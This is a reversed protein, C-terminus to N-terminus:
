ALVTTRRAALDRMLARVGYTWPAADKSTVVTNSLTGLADSRITVVDGVKHTFGRGPEDRDQVPAFLTGLFLAFGDPYQHESLTQRVLDEPDRSIERMSSHGDLRYGDTGEIVLDLEAARVDDMTFGHGFLRVFPGLSCSANNDKAKGLLLASRGEFDRLNVDNGLTAGVPRGRSDVIIVVEPEPNNWHSDSRIGIEGGWGITSLIPAKTFVEADPGIAVELYQSWLGAEILATKLRAAEESGPKVSRIGGGVKAELEGRLAAAASSDGRAREEIVREIASVAFTVGAAKVCQLDIPSRFEVEAGSGEAGLADVDCIADGAASAPDDLDFLDASTSAADFASHVVGGRVIVPVVEGRVAVRGALVADDLDAPLASRSWELTM